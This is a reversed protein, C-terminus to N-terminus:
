KPTTTIQKVLDEYDDETRNNVIIGFTHSKSSVIYQTTYKSFSDYSLKYKLKLIQMNKGTLFKSDVREYDIGQPTWESQFQQELIQLYQQSITKTLHIHEGEQFWISNDFNITDAYIIFATPFTKIAQIKQISSQILMDTIDMLYLANLLEDPSTLKYSKPIDMKASAFDIRVKQLEKRNITKVPQTCSSLILISTIIFITHRMINNLYQTPRYRLM